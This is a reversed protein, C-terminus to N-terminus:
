LNGSQYSTDWDVEGRKELVAEIERKAAKDALGSELALSCPDENLSGRTLCQLKNILVKEVKRIRMRYEAM